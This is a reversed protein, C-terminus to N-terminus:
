PIAWIQITHDDSGTALRTGDPSWAVSRVAQSHARLVHVARKLESDWIQLSGDQCAFALEAGGSRWSVSFVAFLPKDPEISLEYELWEGEVDWIWVSGASHGAAAIRRGDPSWCVSAIATMRGQLMHILRGESADWISVTRDDGATALMSGSPNWSVSTVRDKHAALVSMTQGSECDWIRATRDASGSALLGSQASWAVSYLSKTHGALRSDIMGTEADWILLEINRNGSAIRRGDPSFDVSNAAGHSNIVMRPEGTAPDWTRVSNDRGVSVISSGDLSWRVCDVAGAHGRLTHLCGLAPTNSPCETRGLIPIPAPRGPRIPRDLDKIIETEILNPAESDACDGADAGPDSEGGVFRRATTLLGILERASSPRKQPEMELGQMVAMSIQAPIEVLMERPSPLAMGNRRSIANLPLRGTLLHYLVASLAYIDTPPGFVGYEDYQEFPAYGHTLLSTHKRRDPSIERASGFDILILRGDPRLMMNAPKLDRHLLGASHIVALAEAAQLILGVAEAAPLRGKQSSLYDRLTRGQIHEMVLCATNNEEFVSYIPVIGPHSLRALMRGERLFGRRFEQLLGSTWDGDPALQTGDRRCGTPFFEKIAVYRELLPEHALYTIGFGGTGLVSDIVYDGGRLETGDALACSAKNSKEM